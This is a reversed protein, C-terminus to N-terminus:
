VLDSLSASKKFPTSHSFLSRVHDFCVQMECGAVNKDKTSTRSSVKTLCPTAHHLCYALFNGIFMAMVPESTMCISIVVPNLYKLAGILHFQRDSPPHSPAPSTKCGAARFVKIVFLLPLPLLIALFVSLKPIKPSSSECVVACSAYSVRPGELVIADCGPTEFLFPLSSNMWVM